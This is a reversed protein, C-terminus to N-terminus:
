YKDKGKLVQPNVTKYFLATRIMFGVVNACIHLDQSLDQHESKKRNFTRKANKGGSYPMEDVSFVWEPLYGKGEIIKKIIDPFEDEAEQDDSSTRNEQWKKLGFM